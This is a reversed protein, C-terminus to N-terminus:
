PAVAWIEVARNQDVRKGDLLDTSGMGVSHIINLLNTKDKLVKTVNDARQQSITLNTKPDGAADAYGAVVFVVTPDSIEDQVDKSKIRKILDDMAARSLNTQGTDFRIVLLRDMSRASEMKESLRKKEVDTFRPMANIRKLVDERTADVQPKTLAAPSQVEGGANEADTVPNPAPPTQDPTANPPSAPIVPPAIVPKQTVQEVTPSPLSPPTEPPPTITNDAPPPSNVPTSVLSPSGTPTAPPEQIVGPGGNKDDQAEVVKPSNESKQFALHLIQDKFAFLAVGGGILFLLVFLGIVIFLVKAGAAQSSEVVLPQGCEPCKADAPVAIKEGTYALSCGVKNKCVGFQPKM